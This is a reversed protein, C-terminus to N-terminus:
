INGLHVYNLYKKAVVELARLTAVPTPPKDSMHYAPFFRSLHLPIDPSVSALWQCLAEMEEPSDNEGPIVLTTVEVHCRAAATRISAKVPELAGGMKRYFADTFAKLDFNFADVVELLDALTGPSTYGNSVVVNLLGAEHVLRGTDLIFEPCITPENYTFAVGINGRDRLRVAEDALERPSVPSGSDRRLMSIESNQCFTCRMNCGYSGYSLIRSGPHFHALPKKEIPDLHLATAKGYNLPFSAGARETRAGCIGRTTETLRCQHPCVPCLIM